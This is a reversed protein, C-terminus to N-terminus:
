HGSGEGEGDSDSDVFDGLRGLQETAAGLFEVGVGCGRERASPDLRRQTWAVRGIAEVQAGDPLSLEILVRRGPDLLEHTRIFAGGRSLNECREWSARFYQRGTVPDLDPEITSIRVPLNTTVRNHRRNREAESM